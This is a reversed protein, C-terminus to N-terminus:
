PRLSPRNSSMTSSSSRMQARRKLQHLVEKEEWHYKKKEWGISLALHFVMIVSARSSGVFRTYIRLSVHAPTTECHPGCRQWQASTKRHKPVATMYARVDEVAHLVGGDKIPLPRTFSPESIRPPCRYSLRSVTIAIDVRCFSLSGAFRNGNRDPGHLGIDKLSYRRFGVSV